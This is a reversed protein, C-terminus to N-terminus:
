AERTRTSEVLEALGGGSLFDALEVVSPFIRHSYCRVVWNAQMPTVTLVIAGRRFAEYMEIATGMSASPLYCIVLDSEAAAEVGQTFTRRIDDMGYEISNPHASYHCYIEADSLHTEIAERIPGRWDQQHIAAEIMSGQIIGALFIKM